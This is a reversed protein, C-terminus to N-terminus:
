LRESLLAAVEDDTLAIPNTKMSSGRCNEVVRPIDAQTMGYASLKPLVLSETWAELIDLLTERAVDDPMTPADALLRGVDAYKSLAVNEGFENIGRGQLAHINAKTCAAVLTGCVVGHPMPFFAGLPSAMGHVSGLGVQALTIGSLMAAYAKGRRHQAM